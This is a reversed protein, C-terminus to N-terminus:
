KHLGAFLNYENNGSSIGSTNVDAETSVTFLDVYQKKLEVVQEELGTLKGDEIKLKERDIKSMVLDEYKVGFNKLEGSLAMNLREKEVSGKIEVIQDEYEKKMAEIDVKSMEEMKTKLGSLEEEMKKKGDNIEKFRDYPIVKFSEDPISNFADFVKQYDEGLITKLEELKGDKFLKGLDMVRRRENKVHIVRISLSFLQYVINYVLVKSFIGNKSFYNLKKKNKKIQSNLISKINSKLPSFM